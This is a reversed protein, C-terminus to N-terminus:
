YLNMTSQAHYKEAGRRMKCGGGERWGGGGGRLWQRGEGRSMEEHRRTSTAALSGKLEM